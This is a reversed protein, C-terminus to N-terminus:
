YARIGIGISLPLIEPGKDKKFVSTLQYGVYLNVCRYGVRAFVSYVVSETGSLDRYKVNYIDNDDDYQNIRGVVKSKSRLLFGIKGGFSIKFKDAIRFNLEMPIDFYNVNIKSKKIFISDNLAIPSSFPDTIAAGKLYFNHCSVGIGFSVTHKSEGMPMNYTIYLNVGQNITRLNMKDYGKGKNVDTFLDFGMTVKGNTRDKILQAKGVFSIMLLVALLFVQKKM